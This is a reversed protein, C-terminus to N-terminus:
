RLTKPQRKAHFETTWHHDYFGSSNLRHMEPVTTPSTLISDCLPTLADVVVQGLYGLIEIQGTTHGLLVPAISSMAEQGDEDPDGFHVGGEVHAYYRIIQKVSLDRGEIIGVRAALFQAVKLATTEADGVLEPGSLRILYNLSEGASGSRDTAQWPRIRFGPTIEHRVRRVTTLLPDGRDTLLKRLLPAIGLLEYRSRSAPDQSRHRLDAVTEVFLWEALMMHAGIDRAM